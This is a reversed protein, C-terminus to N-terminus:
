IGELARAPRAFYFGCSWIFKTAARQCYNFIYKKLEPGPAEPGRSPAPFAPGPGGWFLGVNRTFQQKPFGPHPFFTLVRILFLFCGGSPLWSERVRGLRLDLWSIAKLDTQPGAKQHLRCQLVLGTTRSLNQPRTQGFILRFGSCM